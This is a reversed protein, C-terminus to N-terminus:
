VQEIHLGRSPARGAPCRRIADGGEQRERNRTLIARSRQPRTLRHPDHRRRDATGLSEARVHHRGHRASRHPRQRPPPRGARPHIAAHHALVPRELPPLVSGGPLLAVALGDARVGAAVMRGDVAAVRHRRDAAGAVGAWLHGMHRAHGAVFLRRALTGRRTPGPSRPADPGSSRACQGAERGLRRRRASGTPARLRRTSGSAASTASFRRPFRTLVARQVACRLLGRVM